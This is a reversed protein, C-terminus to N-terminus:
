RTERLLYWGDASVGVVRAGDQMASAVWDRHLSTWARAIEPDNRRLAVVDKPLRVWRRAGARRVAAADDPGTALVESAPEPEAAFRGSTTDVDWDVVFRDTPGGSTFADVVPGFFDPEHAIVQAGLRVFNFAANAGVLPDFTWRIRRYGSQAAWRRQHVKLAAGIGRRAHQPAVGVALSYLVGSEHAPVAVSAAITRGGESAAAVHGGLATFARLLDLPVVPHGSDAAWVSDLLQEVEGLGTVDSVDVLLM